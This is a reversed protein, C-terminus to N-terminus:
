KNLYENIDNELTSRMSDYEEELHTNIQITSKHKALQTTCLWYDECLSKFNEDNQYLQIIRVKFDPFKKIMAELKEHIWM